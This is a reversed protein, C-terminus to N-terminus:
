KFDQESFFSFALHKGFTTEQAMRWEPRALTGTTTVIVDEPCIFFEDNLETMNTVQPAPQRWSWALMGRWDCLMCAHM